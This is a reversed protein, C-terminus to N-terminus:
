GRRGLGVCRSVCYLASWKVSMDAFVGNVNDFEFKFLFFEEGCKIWTYISVMVVAASEEDVTSVNFEKFLFERFAVNDLFIDATSGRLGNVM